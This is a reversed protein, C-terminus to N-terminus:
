SRAAAYADVPSTHVAQVPVSLPVWARIGSPVFPLPVDYRVVTTVESGPELCPSSSCSIM